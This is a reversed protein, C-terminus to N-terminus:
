QNENEDDNLSLTPGEKIIPPNRRYFIKYTDEAMQEASYQNPIELWWILIRTLSGTLMQALVEQDINPERLRLSSTNKIDYFLAKAVLDQMRGFLKASGQAGLVARYLDKNNTAHRFVSCLALYRDQPIRRDFRKHLEQILENLIEQVAAWVVDEKGKFHIYFTGRGLDARDTIDQITVVDYGKELILGLTTKILLKQTQQSRREHRSFNTKETM